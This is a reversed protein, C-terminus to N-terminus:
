SRDESQQDEILSWSYSFKIHDDAAQLNHAFAMKKIQCVLVQYGKEDRSNFSSKIENIEHNYKSHPGNGTIGIANIGIKKLSKYIIDVESNFKCWILVRRQPNPKLEETAFDILWNLKASPLPVVRGEYPVFGGVIQQLRILTTAEGALSLPDLMTEGMLEVSRYMDKQEQTM